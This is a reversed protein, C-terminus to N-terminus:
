NVAIPPPYIAMLRAANLFPQRIARAKWIPLSRANHAFSPFLPFHRNGRRRQPDNEALWKAVSL